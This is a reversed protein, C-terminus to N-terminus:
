IPNGGPTNGTQKLPVRAVLPESESGSWKMQKMGLTLKAGNPLTATVTEAEEDLEVTADPHFFPKLLKDVTQSM